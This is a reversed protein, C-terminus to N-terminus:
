DSSGAKTFIAVVFDIVAEVLLTIAVFTWLVATSSFPNSIIIVAFVVTLIASIACWFWKKIRLRIMDITLQVKSIGLVLTGIGYLVTLVPFTSIFWENKVIFFVGVLMELLGRTMDKRIAAKEPAERFYQIVAAIGLVVMVIGLFIFIASTFGVPDILLLIGIAIECLALVINNVKSMIKM